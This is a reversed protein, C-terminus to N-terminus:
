HDVPAIKSPAHVIAERVAPLPEGGAKAVTTGIALAGAFLMLSRETNETRNNNANASFRHIGRGPFYTAGSQRSHPAIRDQRHKLATDMAAASSQIFKGAMAQAPVLTWLKDPAWRRYMESEFPTREFPDARLNVVLPM